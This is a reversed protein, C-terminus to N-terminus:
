KSEEQVKFSIVDIKTFPVKKGLHDLMIKARQQNLVRRHTISFDVIFNNKGSEVETKGEDYFPMLFAKLAKEEEELPAIEARLARIKDQIMALRSTYTAAKPTFRKSM